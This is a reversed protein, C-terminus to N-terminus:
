VVDHDVPHQAINESGPVPHRGLGRRDLGRGRGPGDAHGAPDIKLVRQRKPGFADVDQGAPLHHGPALGRVQQEGGIRNVHGGSGSVGCGPQDLAGLFDMQQAAGHPDVAPHLGGRGIRSHQEVAFVIHDDETLHLRGAVDLDIGAHASGPAQRRKRGARKGAIVQALPVQGDLTRAAQIRFVVDTDPDAAIHLHQRIREQGLPGFRQATGHQDGTGLGDLHHGAVLLDGVAEDLDGLDVPDGGLHGFLHAHLLHLDAGLEVGHVHGQLLDAVVVGICRGPGLQPLEEDLPDVVGVGGEAPRGVVPIVAVLREGLEVVGLARRDQVLQPIQREVIEGEGVGRQM